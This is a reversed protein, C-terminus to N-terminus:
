PPSKSGRQRALRWDLCRTHRRNCGKCTIVRVYEGREANYFVESTTTGPETCGDKHWIGDAGLEMM